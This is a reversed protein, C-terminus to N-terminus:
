DKVLDLEVRIRASKDRIARIDQGMQIQSDAVEKQSQPLIGFDSLEKYRRDREAVTKKAGAVNGSLFQNKALEDLGLIGQAAGAFRGPTFGFGSTSNPSGWSHGSHALDGLTPMFKEINRRDAEARRNAEAAADAAEQRKIQELRREAEEAKKAAAEAEKRQKEQIEFIQNEFEVSQKRLEWKKKEGTESEAQEALENRQKTLAVIQDDDSMKQAKSHLAFWQAFKEREVSALEAVHEVSKEHRERIIMELAKEQSIGLDHATKLSEFYAEGVELISAVTQKFKVGFGETSHGLDDLAQKQGESLKGFAEALKDADDKIALYEKGLQMVERLLAGITLFHFARRLGHTFFNGAEQGAQAMQNKVNAMGGAVASSDVGIQVVAEERTM